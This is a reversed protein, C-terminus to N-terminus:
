NRLRTIGSTATGGHNSTVRVTFPQLAGVLTLTYAGAALSMQTPAMMPQGARDFSQAMLVAPPVANAATSTAQIVLRLARTRYEVTGIGVIDAVVPNVTIVVTDTSTPQGVGTVTVSFTLVSAAGPAVLPAQFTAAVTNAGSLLVPTGSVQAWAFTLAANNPNSTAAASLTVLQGSAVTQDAGADATLSLGSGCNVGLPVPIGPWPNLQGVVPGGGGLPGSGLALFPMDQFNNPVIPKGVGANEPFLFDFIPAQYQGATLGNATVLPQSGEVIAIMERTAPLFSGGQPLSLSLSAGNSNGVNAPNYRWRGTVAGLPPGQDCTVQGWARNTAAGSCPDVDIGFLSVIRTADTCFGEFKTRATAETLGAVTVGGVGVLMVDLACYVPDTGPFTYIGVNATVSYAAIYPTGDNLLIGSYFIHDGIELPAMVRPDPTGAVVLNVPPMTFEMLFGSPSAASLPRNAQPCLPDNASRPIGMPYGTESRITPNNEDIGFREDPTWARGFRGLPDNIKVRQGTAPDGITGGVRFFGTAYDIYNIFGQSSQLSDQSLFMLGAVYTNGVRNGVVHAEFSGIPPPVDTLALGTQSPGWPAPAMAFVQQWTLAAAPMQLITNAPVTIQQNNVTITGGSLADAPNDITAAQILGVVDFQTPNQPPAVQAAALCSVAIASLVTHGITASRSRTANAQVFSPM